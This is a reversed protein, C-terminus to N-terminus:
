GSVKGLLDYGATGTVTVEVIKGVSSKGTFYVCNDVEPAQFETRGTWRNVRGGKKKKQPAPGETLVKIRSGLRAGNRREVIKKQALLLAKKRESKVAAPVKRPLTESFIDRHASYEFVGLQEFWGDAVFDYLKRFDRETEGPYGVIFTTRLAINPVTVRIREVLSRVNKPRRMSALVRDSVHQLPIDLYKCVKEEDRIVALLDGSVTSPYAYLVRLWAAAPLKSLRHLLEPLANRRYLDFGYRTTDQAILALERIGQATLREAEEVIAEIRRSQYVGRLRPIACFGCRHNCGEAIRLCASPLHSSLLRPGPSELLGGPHSYFFRKGEAIVAPLKELDGTGLFGDIESFEAALGRGEDQVLCGTVLLRGIRGAKKLSCLQKIIDASECRADAIFSCTHVVAVDANELRTTLKCGANRLLGAMNEGEVINKACGLTILCVSTM